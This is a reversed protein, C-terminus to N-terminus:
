GMNLEEQIRKMADGKYKHARLQIMCWELAADFGDNFNDHRIAIWSAAAQDTMWRNPCRRDHWTGDNWQEYGRSLMESKISEGWSSDKISRGVEDRVM